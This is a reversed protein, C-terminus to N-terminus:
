FFSQEIRSAMSADALPKLKGVLALGYLVVFGLTLIVMVWSKLADAM